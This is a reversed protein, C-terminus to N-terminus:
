GGQRAAPPFLEQHLSDDKHRERDDSDRDNYDCVVM